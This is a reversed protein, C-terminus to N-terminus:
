RTIAAEGALQALVEDATLGAPPWRERAARSGLRQLLANVPVPVGHLRGLLVIEGSLYDTEIAGTGRALSQRTSSGTRARGALDRVGWREWRARIDSVEDDVFDIGATALVTRGEERAREALEDAAPGPRCIADVANALNLVLKSYKARMVEGHPASEFGAGTLAQAVQECREDVGSPYRGVDITGTLLSGYAIVTGAELHAAPVMVVAGYVHEFRRLALRESEVGNQLCLVPTGPPAAAELASLASGADQTKTTLMVVEEGTWSLAGPNEAVRIRLVTAGHPDEITLGRERIAEYHAGRAILVVDRGAQALRAGVVGGIAGAGFIVFRM